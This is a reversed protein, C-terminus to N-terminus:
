KEKIWVEFPSFDERWEGLPSKVKARVPKSTPNVIVVMEKNRDKVFVADLPADAPEIKISDRRIEGMAYHMGVKQLEKLFGRFFNKLEESFAFGSVWDDYTDGWAYFLVGKAGNNLALYTMCRIEEGTPFRNQSHPPPQRHAQIVAWVPRGKSADRMEKVSNGVWALSDPTSAGIPYPDTGIIEGTHAYKVVEGPVENVFTPHDPDTEKIIECFRKVVDPPIGGGAPEDIAYHVLIHPQLRLQSVLSRAEEFNRRGGRIYESLETIVWLGQLHAEEFWEQHGKSLERQDGGFIPSTVCNFGLERVKKLDEKGVHYTGIPFFPKGDVLLEGKKGLSVRSAEKPIRVEFGGKAVESERKTIARVEVEYREGERSAPFTGAPFIIKREGFVLSLDKEIPKALSEGKITVRCSAKEGEPPASRIRLEVNEWPFFITRPLSMEVLPPVRFAHHFETVDGNAKLYAVASLAGRGQCPLSVRLVKRERPGLTFAEWKGESLINGNQRISFKIQARQSVDKLNEVIFSTRFTGPPIESPPEKWEGMLGTKLGMANTYLNELMEPSLAFATTVILVGKGINAVLGVATGGKTQAWVKYKNGWRRIHAWYPLSLFRHPSTLFSSPSTIDLQAKEGGLDRRADGYEIFLQPDLDALWDCMPPYAMDTLIAIGGKELFAGFQLLYHRMEQPDGYNWLSTTLILDYDSQKQFFQALDTNRFKDYQWGLIRLREDYEMWSRYDNNVGSSSILAVRNPRINAFGLVCVLLNAILLHKRM